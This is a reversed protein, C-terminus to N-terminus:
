NENNDVKLKNNVFSEINSVTPNDDLTASVPQLPVNSNLLKELTYDCPEPIAKNLANVSRNVLNLYGKGDAELTPQEVDNGVLSMSTKFHHHRFAM